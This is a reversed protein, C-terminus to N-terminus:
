KELSLAANGLAYGYCFLCQFAFNEKAELLSLIKGLLM